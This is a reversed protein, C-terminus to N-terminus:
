SSVPKGWTPVVVDLLEPLRAWIKRQENVFRQELQAWCVDCMEVESSGSAFARYYKWRYFPYINAVLTADERFNHLLRQLGLLCRFKQPRQQAHKCDKSTYPTFAALVAKATECALLKQAAICRGLDEPTLQGYSGDGRRYGEVLRQGLRAASCFPPPFHRGTLRAINVIDIAHVIKMGPLPALPTRVYWKDFDDHFYCQLYELSQELVFDIEYKHSLRIYASIQQYTPLIIHGPRQVVNANAVPMLLRLLHRWDESIDTVHVVPYVSGCVETTRPPPQPVKFMNNFVDSLTALQGQYIRLETSHAIIALNGDEYWLENDREIPSSVDATEKLNAPDDLNERQM